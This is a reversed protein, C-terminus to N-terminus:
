FAYILPDRKLAAVTVSPCKETPSRCFVYREDFRKKLYHAWSLFLLFYSFYFFQSLIKMAILNNKSIVLLECVLLLIVRLGDL